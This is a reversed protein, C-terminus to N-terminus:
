NVDLCEANVSQHNLSAFGASLDHGPWTVFSGVLVWIKKRERISVILSLLYVLVWMACPNLGDALGIIVTLVPLSFKSLQLEGFWPLDINEEALWERDEQNFLAPDDELYASIAKEITVGTSQENKFGVIVYPGIVSVPVSLGSRVVGMQDAITNLLTAEKQQSTDHMVLSIQPYKSTLYRNFSKQKQCHPCTPHYFFHLTDKTTFETAIPQKQPLLLLFFGLAILILYLYRQFPDAIIQKLWPPLSLFQNQPTM